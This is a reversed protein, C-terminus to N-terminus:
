QDCKLKILFLVHLAETKDNTSSTHVYTHQHRQQRICTCSRMTSINCPRNHTIDFFAMFYDVSVMCLIHRWVNSTANICHQIQKCYKFFHHLQWFWYLFLGPPLSPYKRHLSDIIGCSLAFSVVASSLCFNICFYM